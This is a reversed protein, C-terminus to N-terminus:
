ACRRLVRRVPWRGPGARSRARAVRAHRAARHRRGAACRGCQDTRDSPRAPPRARTVSSASTAPQCADRRRAVEVVDIRRCADVLPRPDVARDVSRTDCDSARDRDRDVATNGPQGEHVLARLVVGQERRRQERRSVVVNGRVEHGPPRARGVEDGHLEGGPGGSIRRWTLAGAADRAVRQRVSAPTRATAPAVSSAKPRRSANSACGMARSSRANMGSSVSSCTTSRGNSRARAHGSPRRFSM